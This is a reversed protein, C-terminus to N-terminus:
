RSITDWMSRGSKGEEEQKQKQEEDKDEYLLHAGEMGKRKAVRVAEVVGSFSRVVVPIQGASLSSAGARCFM